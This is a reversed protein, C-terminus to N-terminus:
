YNDTLGILYDSTVDYFKCLSKLMGISPERDGHEYHAYTMLNINLALAVERLTLGKEQRLQRLREGQFLTHCNRHFFSLQKM